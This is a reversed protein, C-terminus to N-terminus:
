GRLRPRCTVAGLDCVGARGSARASTSRGCRSSGRSCCSAAPACTCRSRPWARTTARPAAGPGRAPTSTRPARAPHARRGRPTRASSSRGRFPPSEEPLQVDCDHIEGLLDQAEQDASANERVPRLRATIELV